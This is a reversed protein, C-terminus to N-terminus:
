HQGYVEALIKDAGKSLLAEALATGIIEADEPSGEAHDRIIRDGSISGVLSDMVLKGNMLRAYAAIPVQCGGELRKLLAREARVCIASEEHNLPAILKQTFDDDIRCEIGIAGQGIAPLSIDPALVETIRDSWGLRKVGAVALIIANFQGEDLKRLRTELNGRLQMIRIDPRLSLLQCSRRLSSTGITAGQPLDQFGRIPSTAKAVTIFADRPDERKCIVALELGEPFETPVDKISHVALDAEGRLMAEEIEKVFLGKGGVQSLPVDLIKDGSTKIKNLEIRLGPHMKQLESKVWEAQWLALKSARTGIVVKNKTMMKEM